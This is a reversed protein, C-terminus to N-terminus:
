GGFAVVLKLVVAGLVSIMIMADTNMYDIYEMKTILDVNIIPEILHLNLDNSYGFRQKLCTVLLVTTYQSM